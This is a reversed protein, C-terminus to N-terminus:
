PSTSEAARRTAGRASTIWITVRTFRLRRGALKERVRFSDISGLPAPLRRGASEDTKRVDDGLDARDLASPPRGLSRHLWFHLVGSDATAAVPPLTTM